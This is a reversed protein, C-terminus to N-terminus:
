IGRGTLSGHKCYAGPLLSRAFRFALIFSISAKIGVYRAFFILFGAFIVFLSLHWIQRDYDVLAAGQIKGGEFSLTFIARDGVRVYRDLMVNGILSNQVTIERGRFPSSLIRATIKQGGVKLWGSVMDSDDDIQTVRAAVTKVGPPSPNIQLFLVASVALVVAILITDKTVLKQICKKSEAMDASRTKLAVRFTEFLLLPYM